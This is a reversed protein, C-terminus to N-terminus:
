SSTVVCTLEDRTPDRGETEHPVPLTTSGDSFLFMLTVIPDAINISGDDNADAADLCRPVEGSPTFLYSLTFQADSLNVAQDRNSDGRFFTQDSVIQLFGGELKPLTSAFRAEGSHTLENHVRAPGVGEGDPGNTPILSLTGSPADPAISVAIRFALKEEDGPPLEAGFAILDPVFGFYLIGAEVDVSMGHFMVRGVGSAYYTGEWLKPNKIDFDPAVPSVVNPDVSIAFQFAEVDVSNRIYVPIFATEGPAAEVDGIRILDDTEEPALVDYNSCGMPYENPTVDVGAEPYPETPGEGDRVVFNLIAVQDRINITGSDDFDAAHHCRPPRDGNFLWNRLMLSDSLSVNGDANLDGRLFEATPDAIQAFSSSLPLAVALLTALSVQRLTRIMSDGKGPHIINTWACLVSHLEMAMGGRSVGSGWLYLM